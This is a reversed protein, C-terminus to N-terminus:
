RRQGAARWALSVEPLDGSRHHLRRSRGATLCGRNLESGTQRARL